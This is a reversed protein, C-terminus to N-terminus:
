VFPYEIIIISMTVELFSVNVPFWRRMCYLIQATDTFVEELVILYGNAIKRALTHLNQPCVRSFSSDGVIDTITLM